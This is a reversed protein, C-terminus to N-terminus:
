EHTDGAAKTLVDLDGARVVAVPCRSAQLTTHGVSGLKLGTFGGLGRSGVVLLSGPEALDRLVAGPAGPVVSLGAEVSPYRQRAALLTVDLGAILQEQDGGFLPGCSRDMPGPPDLAHVASLPASWRAAQAFAFEGAEASEPSGDLGLVIRQPPRWGDVYGHPVTIAPCRAHASVAASTSAMATQKWPQEAPGTLVVACAARSASVMASAPNDWVVDREVALGPHERSVSALDDDLDHRARAAMRPLLAIQSTTVSHAALARLSLQQEAAWGAAWVLAARADVSGDTAVVVPRGTAASDSGRQSVADHM